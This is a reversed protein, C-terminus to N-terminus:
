DLAKGIIEEMEHDHKQAILLRKQEEVLDLIIKGQTPTIDENAIGRLVREGMTLLISKKNIDDPLELNIPESHPKPPLMRELFLRLMTENGALALKIAKDFLAERHPEVLENFVQQRHGTGRPRGSVNGSEGSQFPM